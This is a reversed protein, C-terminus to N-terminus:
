IKASIFIRFNNCYALIRTQTEGKLNFAYVGNISKVLEPNIMSNITQFTAEVPNGAAAAGAEADSAGKSHDFALKAGDEKLQKVIGEPTDDDLFFDTIPKGGSSFLDVKFSFIEM